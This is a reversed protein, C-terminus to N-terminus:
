QPRKKEGYRFQRQKRLRDGEGTLLTRSVLGLIRTQWFLIVVAVTLAANWWIM